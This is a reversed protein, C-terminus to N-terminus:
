EKTTLVPCGRTFFNMSESVESFISLLALCSISRAKSEFPNNFPSAKVVKTLLLRSKISYYTLHDSSLKNQNNKFFFLHMDSCFLMCITKRIYSIFTNRFNLPHNYDIRHVSVGKILKIM